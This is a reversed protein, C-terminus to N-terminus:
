ARPRLTRRVDARFVYWMWAIGSHYAFGSVRIHIGPISMRCPMTDRICVLTRPTCDTLYAASESLRCNVGWQDITLNVTRFDTSLPLNHLNPFVSLYFSFQLPDLSLRFHGDFEDWCKEEGPSEVTPVFHNQTHQYGKSCLEELMKSKLLITRIHPMSLSVYVVTCICINTATYHIVFKSKGISVYLADCQLEKWSWLWHCLSFSPM